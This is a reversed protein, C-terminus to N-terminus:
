AAKPRSGTTGCAATSVGRGGNVLRKFLDKVFGKGTDKIKEKIKDKLGGYIKDVTGIIGYAFAGKAVTKWSMNFGYRIGKTIGSKFIAQFSNRGKTIGKIKIHKAANGFAFGEIAGEASSFFTDRCLDKVSYNEYGKAHTAMSLGNTVLTDVANGAAGAAAMGAKVNGGAAITAGVFVSGETFGGAAAGAYSQWSSFSPKGTTVTKVVDGAFKTGTRVIAGVIGGALWAAILGTPDYANVPDNHCYLYGNVACPVMIVAAASDMSIFRGARPDYERQNAHLLGTVPDNRYGTFGTSFADDEAAENRFGKGFAGYQMHSVGRGASISAIMSRREDSCVYEPKNEREFLLLEDCWLLNETKTGRNMMLLNEAARTYDYVYEEEFSNGNLLYQASARRYLGNYEYKASGKPSVAGTLHNLPDFTLELIKKGNLSVDKLNGRRDYSFSRTGDEGTLSMLQDLRNYTYSTEFEGEKSYTRNGFLDYSYAAAQVGDKHVSALMGLPNYTYTTKQANGDGQRRVSEVQRGCADYRFALSEVAAGRDTHVVSMPYGARNYTYEVSPGEPCSRKKLRSGEAYELNFVIDSYRCGSLRRKEDYSYEATKGDPYRIQKLRDAEWQYDVSRSKQDSVHLLRDEEDQELCIEGLWDQIRVLQKLANYQYKISRADPLLLAERMGDAYYRIDIRNGDEDTVSSLRGCADYSFEAGAGEANVRSIVDGRGDRVFSTIRLGSGSESLEEIDKVSLKGSEPQLIRILRHCSDYLFGTESGSADKMHLLDGSGSYSYLTRNGDADIVATVNGAPDYEYRETRDDLHEAEIVRGLVDYTFKWGGGCEDSISIVKGTKDYEYQKWSGDSGSEKKLLGGPFYEYRRIWGQEDAIERVDGLDTYDFTRTYGTRDTYSILNGRLDYEACERVGDGYDVEVVNGLADYKAKRVTGVPDTISVMRNLEDYEMQYVAGDEATRRVLNGCPDYEARQTNGVPDTISVMRGRDDYEYDTVAGDPTKRSIVNWMKDYSYETCNGDEDIYAEPKNLSNYRVVTVGGGFGTMRTMNGRCDYEYTQEEGLANVVRVIRDNNDYEYETRNGLADTSASVRRCDDYEYLTEGQEPTFTRILDGRDNYIFESRSGDQRICASVNGYEDYEFRVINGEADMSSVQHGREDYESSQLTIDNLLLRNVQGQENRLIALVDGLPNIIKAIKGIADYQYRKTNGRADTESTLLNNDDYSFSEEGDSYITKVHRFKEDHEYIIDSGNQQTMTVQRNVDDYQYRVEGGDAFLQSVTRGQDDFRNFLVCEGDPAIVKALRDSSDYDYGTTNGEPDTVRVLLDGDYSFSVTRGTQDSISSVKGDATYSMSFIVGYSDKVESLAGDTYEYSIKYTEDETFVEVPKGEPNFRYCNMDEDTFLYGDNEKELTDNSAYVPIFTGNGSIYFDTRSGDEGTVWAHEDRITLRREFTTTWGKGAMGVQTEQANYFIRLNNFVPTDYEFFNNEYVYNGTNLNVPDASYAAVSTLGSKKFRSLIDRVKDLLGPENNGNSIDRNGFSEGGKMGLIRMECAQYIGAIETLKQALMNIDRNLKRIEGELEHIRRVSKGSAGSMCANLRSKASELESLKEELSNGIQGVDAAIAKMREINVSFGTM